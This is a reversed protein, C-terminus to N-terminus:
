IQESHEKQMMAMESHMKEQVQTVQTKGDMELYKNKVLLGDREDITEHLKQQM